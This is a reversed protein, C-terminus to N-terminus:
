PHLLREKRGVYRAHCAAEREEGDEARERASPGAGGPGGVRDEDLERV